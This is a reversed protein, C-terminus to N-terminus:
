FAAFLSISLHKYTSINLHQFHSISFHQFVPISFMGTQVININCIIQTSLIIHIFIQSAKMPYIFCNHLM